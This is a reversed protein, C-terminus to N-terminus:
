ATKSNCACASNNIVEYQNVMWDPLEVKWSSQLTGMEVLQDSNLYHDQQTGTIDVSMTRDKLEDRKGNNWRDVTGVLYM